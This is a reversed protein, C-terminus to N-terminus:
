TNEVPRKEALPLYIRFETGEGPKTSVDIRGGHQEVIGYVISLGLGNM